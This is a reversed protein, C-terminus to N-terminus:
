KAVARTNKKYAKAVLNEIENQNVRYTQAANYTAMGPILYDAATPSKLYDNEEQATRRKALFGAVIGGIDALASAQVGLLGGMAAFNGAESSNGTLHGIGYGLGAGLIISPIMNTLPGLSQATRHPSFKGEDTMYPVVLENPNKVNELTVAKKQFSAAKHTKAYEADEREEADGIARGISKFYNYTGVGPVLWEKATGTNAYAKQEEKTRRKRAAAAIMAVLEAVGAAGAGIGAGITAGALAPRDDNAFNNTAAGIIGGGLAGVGTALLAAPIGGLKASWL